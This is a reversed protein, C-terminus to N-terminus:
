RTTAEAPAPAADAAFSRVDGQRVPFDVHLGGDVARFMGRARLHEDGLVAEADRV